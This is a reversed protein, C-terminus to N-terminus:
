CLKVVNISASAFVAAIGTNQITLEVNNNICSCSPLVEIITSFSINELDTAGTTAITTETGPILVGNKMLQVTIEGAAGSAVGNFIIHYIGPTKIEIGTGGSFAISCGTQQFNAFAVLGNIAVAQDPAGYASLTSKKFKNNYNM